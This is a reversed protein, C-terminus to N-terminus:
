TFSDGDEQTPALGEAVTTTGLNNTDLVVLSEAIMANSAGGYTVFAVKTGGASASVGVGKLPQGSSDKVPQGTGKAVDCLYLAGNAHYTSNGAPVYSEILQTPGVWAFSGTSYSPTGAGVEKLAATQLDYSWLQLSTQSGSKSRLFAIRTGDPSWAIDRITGDSPPVLQKIQGTPSVLDLDNAQPGGAVAIVSQKAAVTPSSSPSLSTTSPAPSTTPSSPSASATPAPSPATGNGGCAAVGLFVAAVAVAAVLAVVVASRRVSTRMRAKM